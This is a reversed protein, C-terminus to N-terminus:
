AGLEAIPGAADVEVQEGTAAVGMFEGGHTGRWVQHAAVLDGEALILTIEHRLNPFADLSYQVARYFRRM